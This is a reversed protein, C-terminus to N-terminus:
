LQKPQRQRLFHLIGGFLSGLIDLSLDSLTDPLDGIFSLGDWPLPLVAPIATFSYEALEWIMGILATVGVLLITRNLWSLNALGNQFYSSVILYVGWGSLFHLIMDFWFFRYFNFGFGLIFNAAIATFIIWFGTNKIM